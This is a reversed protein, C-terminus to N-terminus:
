GPGVKIYVRRSSGPAFPYDAENLTSVSFWYHVVGHGSAFKWTTHFRGNAAINPIGVTERVGSVGIRLRLLKGAPIYGGLVRGSIRITRGWRVRRPRITLKVKAPVILKVSASTAPEITNTGGYAAEILRSPGAPLKASWIGDNATTVLAAQTFANSGNDPATMIQVPQGGLPAGAATGVWGSVTTAEGYAVRRVSDQVVHPLQVVRQKHCHGAHCIRKMVIRVHCREVRHVITRARRRVSVVKGHRRVKVWHAPINERKRVKSCQLGKIGSFSAGSVSPQRISVTWSAPASSNPQGASNYSNNEARCDLLHDGVGSVPIQESAGPHWKPPANDLSCSIGQVGSAGATATATIYQTGAASSADTPGSLSIAPQVSDVHITEPPRSSQNLAASQASLALQQNGNGSLTVTPSLTQTGPCQQWVTYNRLPCWGAAPTVGIPVGNESASMSLIGSPASASYAASWGGGRVYESAGKSWLNDAGIPTIWPSSPDEAVTLQVDEVNLLAHDAPCTTGAPNCELLFGFTSSPPIASRFSGNSAVRAPGGGGNWLFYALYGTGVVNNVIIAPVDVSVVSLGGPANAVWGAVQGPNETHVGDQVVILGEGPLGCQQVYAIGFTSYGTFINNHLSADNAGCASVQETAIAATPVALQVVSAGSAMLTGAVLWVAPRNVRATVRPSLLSRRSM